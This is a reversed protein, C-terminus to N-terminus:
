EGGIKQQAKRGRNKAPRMSRGGPIPISAGTETISYHFFLLFLLFINVQNLYLSTLACFLYNIDGGSYVCYLLLMFMLNFHEHFLEYNMFYLLFMFMLSFRGHFM